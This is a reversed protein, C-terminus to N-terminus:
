VSLLNLQGLHYSQHNTRGLLVNLKNRHPEREFDEASISNHKGLWDQTTMKQFHDALTAMVTEWQQKLEAVSPLTEVSKDPAIQFQAYFEPYLKEGLGFLPLMGDNAALLHGLLYIARNRGPAVEQMYAAEDYKNFFTTVSKNQAAWSNIVQRIVQELAATEQTITQNQM